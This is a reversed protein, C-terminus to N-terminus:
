LCCQRSLPTQFKANDFSFKILQKVCPNGRCSGVPCWFAVKILASFLSILFAFSLLAGVVRGQCSVDSSKVRMVQGSPLPLVSRWLGGLLWVNSPPSPFISKFILSQITSTDRVASIEKLVSSIEVDFPLNRSGAHRVQVQETKSKSCGCPQGSGITTLFVFTLTFANTKKSVYVQLCWWNRQDCNIHKVCAELWCNSRNSYFLPRPSLNDEQCSCLFRLWQAETKPSSNKSIFGWAMFSCSCTHLM